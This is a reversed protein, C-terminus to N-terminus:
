RFWLSRALRWSSPGPGSVRLGNAPLAPTDIRALCPQWRWIRLIADQMLRRLLLGMGGWSGITRAPSGARFVLEAQQGDAINQQAGESTSFVIRCKNLFLGTENKVTARLDKGDYEFFGSIGGHLDVLFEVGFARTTWMHMDVDAIKPQPGYVVTAKGGVHRQASAFERAGVASKELLLDYTARAPSFLGIYGRGRALSSGPEVEIIGLRNVIIQGGRIGYGVGYAGVTF